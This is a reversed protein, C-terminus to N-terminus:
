ILKDGALKDILKKVEFVFAEENGYVMWKPKSKELKEKLRKIFEKVDESKIVSIKAIEGVGSSFDICMGEDSKLEEEIIKESLNFKEKTM